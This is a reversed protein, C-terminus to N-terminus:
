GAPVDHIREQGFSELSNFCGCTCSIPSWDYKGLPPQRVCAGHLRQAAAIMARVASLLSILSFWLSLKQTNSNAKFIFPCGGATDPAGHSIVARREAGWGGAGLGCALALALAAPERSWELSRFFFSREQERTEEAGWINLNKGGYRKRKM